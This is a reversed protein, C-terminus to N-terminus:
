NAVNSLQFDISRQSRKEKLELEIKRSSWSLKENLELEIQGSNRSLDEGSVISRKASKKRGIEIFKLM